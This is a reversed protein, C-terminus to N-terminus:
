LHRSTISCVKKGEFLMTQRSKAQSSPAVVSVAVLFFIKAIDDDDHSHATTTTTTTM